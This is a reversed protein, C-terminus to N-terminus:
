SLPTGWIKPTWEVPYLKYRKEFDIYGYVFRGIQPRKEPGPGDFIHIFLLFGAAWVCPAGCRSRLLGAAKACCAWLGQVVSRADASCCARLRQVVSRADDAYCVWLRQVVPGCRSFLLGAAKACRAGCRRRLLGVDKVFRPQQEAGPAGASDGPGECLRLPLM